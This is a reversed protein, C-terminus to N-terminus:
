TCLYLKRVKLYDQKLAEYIAKCTEPIIKVLVQPSVITAFKLDEFSRGTALFPLTAAIRAEPTLAHRMVSDQKAILPKVKAILYQVNEDSMRLYNKYDEPSDNRIFNLLNLHTFRDRGLLWKKAWMDRRKRNKRKRWFVSCEDLIIVAAAVQKSSSMRSVSIYSCLKPIWEHTHPSIYRLRAGSDLERLRVRSGSEYM